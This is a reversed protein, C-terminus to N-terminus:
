GMWPTISRPDLRIGRMNIVPRIYWGGSHPAYTIAWSFRILHAVNTPYACNSGATASALALANCAQDLEITKWIGSTLHHMGMTSTGVVFANSRHPGTFGIGQTVM